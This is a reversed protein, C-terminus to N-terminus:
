RALAAEIEQNSPIDKLSPGVITVALKCNLLRQRCVERLSDVTIAEVRAKLEDMPIRRGYFMLQRGIDETVPTSGDLMLMVNTLLSRKAREVTQSDVDYAMWRWGRVIADILQRLAKPETQFYVGVLGTDKYCTNFSQFLIAGDIKSIDLQMSNPSTLGFGRSRDFDGLITNAVMMALNDEHTWSVGEVCIAGSVREMADVRMIKQCPVYKAGLTYEASGSPLQGFYKSALQVVHSHDVGGSAAIVMRNAKYHTNIYDSLDSRDIKKINENSGLITFSLPSGEFAAAHLEDFVVEQMNQAVEEAERIIVSRESEVDNKNLRSHLLIDSLFDTSREIDSSFCKAYYVTQERSTYANLHVGLNEVELELDYRSRRSTGKFAMHELFHATGNNADNEYRSGADIFVGITATPMNTNETAVRMGNPLTTVTTKPSIISQAASASIFRSSRLVERGVSTIIKKGPYWRSSM